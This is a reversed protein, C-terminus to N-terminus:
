TWVPRIKADKKPGDWDVEAQEPNEAEAAIAKRHIDIKKSDEAGKKYANWDKVGTSKRGKSLEVGNNKLFDDAIKTANERFTMLQMHSAWNAQDEDEVPTQQSDHRQPQASADAAPDVNGDADKDTVPLPLDTPLLPSPPQSLMPSPSLPPSDRAPMATALKDIQADVDVELEDEWIQDDEERVIDADMFDGDSAVSENDSFGNWDGYDFADGGAESGDEDDNSGSDSIVPDVADVHSLTDEIMGDNAHDPSDSAASQSQSAGADDNVVKLEHLRDLKAQAEENEKRIRDALVHEDAKKARAEEEEKEKEARRSLEAALGICYSNKSSQGKQSRAWEVAQNYVMEFANAAMLTSQAIGYFTVVLAGAASSRYLKSPQLVRPATTYSECDFFSQMALCLDGVYTNKLVRKSCDGDVRQISVASSGAYKRQEEPTEHALVDAKELNHLKMLKSALYVAAKTEPEDQPGNKARDLCKKIRQLIADAVDSTSSTVRISASDAKEILTAKYLAPTLKPKARQRKKPSADEHDSEVSPRKDAM